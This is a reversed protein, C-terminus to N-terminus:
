GGSEDKGIPKSKEALTRRLIPLVAKDKERGAAEKLEIVKALTLVRVRGDGVVQMEITNELLDEYGLDVGVTGLLDFPGATGSLLQHGPSELHSLGPRIIRGALDRYHADLEQLAVLLRTLNEPSRSHVLDLDFTNIPAGQLVASVGGVVIFDVRHRTLVELIARLDFTPTTM